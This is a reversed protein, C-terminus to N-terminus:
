HSIKEHNIIEFFEFKKYEKADRIVTKINKNNYPKITVKYVGKAVSNLKIKAEYDEFLNSDCEYCEDLYGAKRLCDPINLILIGKDSKYINIDVIVNLVEESNEYKM